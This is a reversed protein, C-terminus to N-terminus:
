TRRTFTIAGDPRYRHNYAPDHIRQHHFGCLPVLDRLDTRGDRSWPTRHHAESWAYPTQCGDAACTQHSLAAATRQSDTFFRASRGLDLLVSKKTLVAPILAANCALRRAEAASILDGTDLGAAKLGDLLTDHDLKVIM